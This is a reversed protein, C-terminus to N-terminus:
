TQVRSYAIAGGILLLGLPPYVVFSPDVNSLRGLQMIMWVVSFYVLVLGVCRLIGLFLQRSDGKLVLWMGWLFVIMSSLSLASRSIRELHWRSEGIAKLEHSAMFEPEKRQVSLQEFGVDSPIILQKFNKGLEDRLDQRRINKLHWKGGQYVGEKARMRSLFAGNPDLHTIVLDYAKGEDRQVTGVYWYEFGLKTRAMAAANKIEGRASLEGDIRARIPQM